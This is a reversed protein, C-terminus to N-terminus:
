IDPPLMIPGIPAATAISMGRGGKGYFFLSYVMLLIKIAAASRTLVM